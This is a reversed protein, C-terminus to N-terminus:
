TLPTAAKVFADTYTKSLDISKGKVAPNFASLVALCTQPGDPPMIGAM